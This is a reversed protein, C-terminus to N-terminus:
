LGSNGEDASVVEYTEDMWTGPIDTDTSEM